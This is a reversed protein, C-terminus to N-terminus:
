KIIDAVIKVAECPNKEDGLLGRYTIEVTDGVAIPSDGEAIQANKTSFYYLIEDGPDKIIIIDDAYKEVIGTIPDSEINEEDATPETGANEINNSKPSEATDPKTEAKSVDNNETEQEVSTETPVTNEKSDSSCATMGMTLVMMFVLICKKKM